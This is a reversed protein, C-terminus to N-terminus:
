RVLHIEEVQEEFDAEIRKRVIFVHLVSLELLRKRNCNEYLMSTTKTVCRLLVNNHMLDITERTDKIIIQLLLQMSSILLCFRLSVQVKWDMCGVIGQRELTKRRSYSGIHPSICYM